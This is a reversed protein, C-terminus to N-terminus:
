YTWTDGLLCAGLCGAGGFLLTQRLRTDYATAAAYRATPAPTPAPNTWAGNWTWTPGEPCTTSTGACGGFTVVQHRARDYAAAVRQAPAPGSTARQVWGTGTWAWTDGLYGAGGYGGYLLAQRGDGSAPVAPTYTAMAAGSRASPHPTVSTHATWGAGDWTWTDDLYGTANTGGFLVTQGPTGEVYAAAAGSRPPPATALGGTLNAWHTGDWTWTDGLAGGGVGTGGFLVIRGHFADYVATAASRAPPIPGPPFVQSWSLGDWAWTDALLAGQLGEGGFLITVGHRADYAMAAGARASPGTGVKVAWAPAPPPPDPTACVTSAPRTRNLTTGDGLQGWTNSGWGWATGDSRLAFSHGGGGAITVAGALGSASVPTTRDSTTGDGLQGSGNLGWSWVSGDTRRALSHVWGASVQAVSTLGSVIQPTLSATTTGNGLQGNSNRGWARVTGDTLLALTHNQGGSIAQVSSGLATIQTPVTRQVTTGDGLEGEFNAGWGYATGSATVAFSAYVGTAVSTVAPLGSVTVPTMEDNGSTGDGTQGNVNYGWARVTGDARLALVHYGAVAIATVQSVGPVPAPTARDTGTGDGLEGDRNLGWAWVTGDDRLVVTFAQGAGVAVVRDVGAVHVPEHRDITTGDGIQGRDNEGWTWVTGDAQLAVTHGWNGSIAVLDALCGSALVPRAGTVAVGLCTALLSLCVVTRTLLNRM